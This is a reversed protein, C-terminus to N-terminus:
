TKTGNEKEERPNYLVAAKKAEYQEKPTKKGFITEFNKDFQEKNPMPRPMDGKGGDHNHSM